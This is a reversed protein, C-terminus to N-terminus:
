IIAETSDIVNKILQKKTNKLVFAKKVLKEIEKIKEDPLIPILLSQLGDGITSITSQILIKKHIQHSAFITNLFAFVYHSSLKHKNRKIRIRRIHSQILCEDSDLVM